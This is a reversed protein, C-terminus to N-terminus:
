IEKKEKDKIDRKRMSSSPTVIRKNFSMESLVQGAIQRATYTSTPTFPPTQGSKLLLYICPPLPLPFFLFSFSFFLFSFFLFSFFLLPIGSTRTTCQGLITKWTAPVVHDSGDDRWDYRKNIIEYFILIFFVYRISVAVEQSLDWLLQRAIYQSQTIQEDTTSYGCESVM